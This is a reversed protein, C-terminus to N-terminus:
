NYVYQVMKKAKQRTDRDLLSKERLSIPKVNWFALLTAMINDDHYGNQAGAGQQAAEDTYIFKPLEDVTDPDLKPFHAQLLAKFNEILQTKTAYNTYFGLKKTDRQERQNFVEREYIKDYVKRLDEIFAQGVGTAEPVVLPKKVKSYMMAIQVTKETIVNTPVFGSYSAVVKGTNLNICKISCPDVSGTSPDVGIQYTHNAPEEYIKIGDLVRIPERAYGRQEKVWEDYFVAGETLTSDDWKGYVYKEVYLKPKALESTIFAESLNNKNDLMSTEILHTMPGKETKFFKYGWFNAPNTTMNFQQFTYKDCTQCVEYIPVGDKDRMVTQVENGHKCPRWRARSNLGDFVKKAIEELQDLFILGFNHSKINQEAKKLDDANNSVLADLGFFTASSGNHFYITHAGVKYEYFAPPCIETFDKMFTSEANQLTKRGILTQIGPFFLHLLIFKIQFALTKGSAMGGSILNFRVKNNVFEKQKPNLKIGQFEEIEVEGKLWRKGLLEYDLFIQTLDNTM